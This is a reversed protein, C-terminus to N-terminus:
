PGDGHPLQGLVDTAGDDRLRRFVDDCQDRIEADSLPAGTEADRLSLLLDLLDHGARAPSAKRRSIIEDIAASWRREFRARGGNTFAFSSESRSFGDLLNPRGPGEIYARAMYALTERDGSEPMSFLARLVAELATDQFAKSLNARPSKELSRLLHLGADLFHPLLLGISAPAFTPALVRRQRDWDVGEALFLGSGVLPRAVRTVSYPRRYNAANATLVHRVGEPDSVLLTEIGMVRSQVYLREFAYDPWISLTSRTVRWLLRWVPLDKSPVPPAPPVFPSSDVTM